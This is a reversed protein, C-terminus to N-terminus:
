EHNLGDGFLLRPHLSFLLHCWGFGLGPFAAYSWSTGLEPISQCHGHDFPDDLLLEYSQFELIVAPRVEMVLASTCTFLGRPKEIGCGTLSEPAEFNNSYSKRFASIKGLQVTPLGQQIAGM